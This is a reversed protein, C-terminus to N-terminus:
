AALIRPKPAVDHRMPVQLIARKRHLQVRHVLGLLELVHLELVHLQRKSLGGLGLFEFVHLHLDPQALLGPAPYSSGPSLQRRGM